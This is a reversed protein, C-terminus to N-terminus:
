DPEPLAAIDALVRAHRVKINHFFLNMAGCREPLSESLPSAEALAVAARLLYKRYEPDSPEWGNLWKSDALGYLVQKSAVCLKETAQKNRCKAVEVMAKQFRELEVAIDYYHTEFRPLAPPAAPATTATPMSVPLPVINSREM